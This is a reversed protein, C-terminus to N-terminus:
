GQTARANLLFRWTVFVNRQLTVKETAFCSYYSICHISVLGKWINHKFFKYQFLLLKLSCMQRLSKPNSFGFVNFFFCEWRRKPLREEQCNSTHVFFGPLATKNEAPKLGNQRSKLISVFPQQPIPKYYLLCVKFNNWHM